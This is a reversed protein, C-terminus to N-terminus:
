LTLMYSTLNPQINAVQVIELNLCKESSPAWINNFKAIIKKSNKLISKFNDLRINHKKSEM